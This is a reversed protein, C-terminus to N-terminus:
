VRFFQLSYQQMLKLKDPMIQHTSSILTVFMMYMMCLDGLQYGFHRIRSRFLQLCRHYTDVPVQSLLAIFKSFKTMMKFQKLNMM